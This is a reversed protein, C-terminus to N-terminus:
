LTTLLCKWLIYIKPRSPSGFCIVQNLTLGTERCFRSKEEESPYPSDRHEDYWKKFMTTADKPLNGRRKRHFQGDSASPIDWTYCTNERYLEPGHVQNCHCPGTHDHPSYPISSRRREWQRDDRQRDLRELEASSLPACSGGQHGYLNQQSRPQRNYPESDYDPANALSYGQTLSSLPPLNMTPGRSPYIQGIAPNRGVEAQTAIVPRSSANVASSAESFLSGSQLSALSYESSSRSRYPMRASAQEGRDIFDNETPTSAMKGHDNLVLRHNPPEGPADLRMRKNCGQPHIGTFGNRTESAQTIHM